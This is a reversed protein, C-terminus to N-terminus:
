AHQNHPNVNHHMKPSVRQTGNQSQQSVQHMLAVVKDQFANLSNQLKTSKSNQLTKAMPMGNTQNLRVNSNKSLAVCPSEAAENVRYETTSTGEHISSKHNKLDVVSIFDHDNKNAIM